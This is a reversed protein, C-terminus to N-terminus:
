SVEGSKAAEAAARSAKVVPRGAAVLLNCAEACLLPIEHNTGLLDDPNKETLSHARGAELPWLLRRLCGTENQCTAAILEESQEDTILQVIRYMGTQRNVTERWPVPHLARDQFSAWLGLAAPYLTDLVSRVEEITRLNLRWGRRLNPASKLPRYQGVGDYFALHRAAAVDEFIELKESGPDDEHHHLFFGPHVRVQGILFPGKALQDQLRSLIRYAM